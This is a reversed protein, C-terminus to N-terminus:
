TLIFVVTNWWNLCTKVDYKTIDYAKCAQLFRMSPAQSQM